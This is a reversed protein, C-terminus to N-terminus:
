GRHTPSRPGTPRRDRTYWAGGGVMAIFSGFALCVLSLFITDQVSM